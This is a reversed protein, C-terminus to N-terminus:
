GDSEWPQESKKCGDCGALMHDAFGKDFATYGDMWMAKHKIAADIEEKTMKSVKALWNNANDQLHRMIRAEDEKSSPTEVALWTLSWIEHWMLEANPAVYRYGKTGSAFVLFAASAAFGYCRTEVIKGEGSWERMLSVARYAEYLSGGPSQLEIILHRIGHQDCYRMVDMLYEASINEMLFYGKTPNGQDDFIFNFFSLPYDYVAHPDAEKIRFDPKTHCSFCEDSMQTKPCISQAPSEKEEDLMRVGAFAVGVFVFIMLLVILKKM